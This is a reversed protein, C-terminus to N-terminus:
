FKKLKMLLFLLPSVLNYEKIINQSFGLKFKDIGITSTDNNNLAVGGMDYLKYNNNKFYIIDQWHLFRNARGIFNKDINDIIRFLSISHFLRVRKLKKDALYSHISLINGQNDKVHTITLNDWYYNLENLTILNLHKAKAFENYYNLYNTINNEKKFISFNVSEKLARKIEYKTGKSFEKFILNEDQELNIHITSFDAIKILYNDTNSCQKYQVLKFYDFINVNNEFWKEDIIRRKIIM